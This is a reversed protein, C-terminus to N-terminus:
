KGPYYPNEIVRPGTWPAPSYSGTPTTRRPRYYAAEQKPVVRGPTVYQLQMPTYGSLGRHSIIPMGSLTYNPVVPAVVVRSGTYRNYSCTQAFTQCCCMLALALAISGLLFKKM